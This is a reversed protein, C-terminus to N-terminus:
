LDSLSVEQNKKLFPFGQTSYIAQTNFYDAVATEYMRKAAGYGEKGHQEIFIKTMIGPNVELVSLDGNEMRLFDVSCFKIGICQATKLALGTLKLKLSDELDLSSFSGRSLNHQHTLFLKENKKLIRNERLRHALDGELGNELFNVPAGISEKLIESVTSKGDGVIFPREKKYILPAQDKLVYVRYEYESNILPSVCVDFGDKILNLSASVLEKKNKCFYINLGGATKPPKCVVTYDFKEAFEAIDSFFNESSLEKNELPSLFTKHTVNSVGYFSLVDSTIKKDRCIEVAGSPNIDFYYGCVNFSLSGKFYRYLAGESIVDLGLNNDKAIDLFIKNVNV